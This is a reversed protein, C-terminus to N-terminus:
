EEEARWKGHLNQSALPREHKNMFKVQKPTPEQHVPIFPSLLLNPLQLKIELMKLCSKVFNWCFKILVSSKQIKKDLVEDLFESFIQDIELDPKNPVTRSRNEYQPM